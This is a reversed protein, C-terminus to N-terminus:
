TSAMCSTRDKMLCPDLTESSDLQARAFPCSMNVPRTHDLRGRGEAQGRLTAPANPREVHISLGRHPPTAASPKQWSRHSQASPPPM